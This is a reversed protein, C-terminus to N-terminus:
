RLLQLEYYAEVAFVPVAALLVLLLLRVSLTSLGFPRPPADGSPRSVPDHPRLWPCPVLSGHSRMESKLPRSRSSDQVLGYQVEAM